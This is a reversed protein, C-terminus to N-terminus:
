LTFRVVPPLAGAKRYIVPPAPPRLPALGGFAFESKAFRETESRLVNADADKRFRPTTLRDGKPTNLGPNRM